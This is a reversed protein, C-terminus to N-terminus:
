DGVTALRLLTLEFKVQLPPSNRLACICRWKKSLQQLVLTHRSSLPLDRLAVPQASQKSMCQAISGLFKLDAAHEISLVHSTIPPWGNRHRVRLGEETAVSIHWGRLNSLGANQRGVLLGCITPPGRAAPSDRDLVFRITSNEHFTEQSRLLRRRRGPEM